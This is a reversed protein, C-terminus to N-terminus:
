AQNHLGANNNSILDSAIKQIENKGINSDIPTLIGYYRSIVRSINGDVAAYPLGFAISAIAAATYNGIGKLSLITKFDNPFIGNHNSVIDKATFSLNRARTYYGLGQWLKLVNDESANALDFATPFEEIFRNYYSIGQAVRTQQLIIESIWIKYPDTTKRWPLDRKNELYWKYIEQEFSSM